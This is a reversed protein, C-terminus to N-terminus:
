TGSNDKHQNGDNFVNKILVVICNWVIGNLLSGACVLLPYAKILTTAPLPEILHTYFFIGAMTHLSPMCWECVMIVKGLKGWCEVESYIRELLMGKSGALLIASCWVTTIVPIIVLFMM